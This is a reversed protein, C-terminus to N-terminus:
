SISIIPYQSITPQGKSTLDENHRVLIAM